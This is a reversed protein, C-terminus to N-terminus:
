SFQLFFIKTLSNHQQKGQSCNNNSQNDIKKKKKNQNNHFKFRRKNRIRILKHDNMLKEDNLDDFAPFNLGLNTFLDDNIDIKEDSKNENIM